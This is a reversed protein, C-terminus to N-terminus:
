VKRTALQSRVRSLTERTIGLYSAIMHQPVREICGPFNNILKTYKEEASESMSGMLRRQTAILSNQILIRFFREFAPVKELLLDWSPKTILLLECDELADINYLSPENTLFSYLDAVWWGEMSFQLIPQNGKEDITFTRLMGKEVFATYKCIDGDQLLYQRKRLKKPIFLTKTFEFEEETISVKEKISQALVEFM